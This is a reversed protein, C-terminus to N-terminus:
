FCSVADFGRTFQVSTIGFNEKLMEELPILNFPADDVLM